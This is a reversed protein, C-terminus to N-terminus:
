TVIAMRLKGCPRQRRPRSSTSHQGDRLWRIDLSAKDRTVVEDQSFKKLRETQALSVIDGPRYCAVLDDLNARADIELDIPRTRRNRFAWGRTRGSRPDMVRLPEPTKTKNPFLRKRVVGAVPHL